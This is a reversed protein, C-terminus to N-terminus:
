ARANEFLDLAFRRTKPSNSVDFVLDAGLSKVLEHNRISAATIVKYGSHKALQISYQGVSSSGGYVFLQISPM